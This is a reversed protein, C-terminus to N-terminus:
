TQEIASISHFLVFFFFFSYVYLVLQLDSYNTGYNKRQQQNQNMMVVICNKKGLQFSLFYFAKLIKLVEEKQKTCPSMFHTYVTCTLTVKRKIMEKRKGM